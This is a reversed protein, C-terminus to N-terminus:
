VSEQELVRLGDLEQIDLTVELGGAANFYLVGLENNEKMLVGIRQRWPEEPNGYILMSVVTVPNSGKLRARNLNAALHSKFIIPQMSDVGGDVEEGPFFFNNYNTM